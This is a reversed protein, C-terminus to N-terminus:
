SVKKAKKKSSGKTSLGKRRTIGYIFKPVRSDGPAYINDGSFVSSPSTVVEHGPGVVASTVCEMYLQDFSKENNM